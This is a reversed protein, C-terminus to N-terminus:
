EKLEMDLFAACGPRVEFQFVGQEAAVAELSRRGAPTGDASGDWTQGLLTLGSAADFAPAELRGLRAAAAPRADAPVPVRVTAPATGNLNKHLAVVTRTPTGGEGAREVAWLKVKADNASAGTKTVPTLTAASSNFAKTAAVFFAMGYFVPRVLPKESGGFAVPTYLCSPHPGGHFNAGAVGVRALEFLFDAAWLAAAAVDSVGATGGGSVSNVEGMWYPVGAPGDTVARVEPELWDAIGRTANGGLLTELTPGKNRGRTYAHHSYSM